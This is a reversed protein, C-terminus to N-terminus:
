YDHWVFNVSVSCELTAINISTLIVLHCSKDSLRVFTQLNSTKLLFYGMVMERSRRM